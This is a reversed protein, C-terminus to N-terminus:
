NGTMGAAGAAGKVPAAAPPILFACAADAEPAKAVKCSSDATIAAVCESVLAANPNVKGPVGGLCQDRYFRECGEFDDLLGCSKFAACRATEIKRCAEVGVAETGCGWSSSAALSLLLAPGLRM